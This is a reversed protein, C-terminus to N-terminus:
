HSSVASLILSSKPLQIKPISPPMSCVALTLCLILGVISFSPGSNLVFPVLMVKFAYFRSNLLTHKYFLPSPKCGIEM